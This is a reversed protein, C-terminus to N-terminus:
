WRWRWWRWCCPAPSRASSRSRGPASRSAPITRTAVRLTGDPEPGPEEAYIGLEAGSELVEVLRERKPLTELGEAVKAAELGLLAALRLHDLGFLHLITAHYDNVHIPDEVVGWGIENAIQAPLPVIDAMDIDAAAQAFRADSGVAMTQATRESAKPASDSGFLDLDDGTLNNRKLLRECIEGTNRVHARLRVRLM